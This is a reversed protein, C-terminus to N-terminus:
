LVQPHIVQLGLHQEFPDFDRTNHRRTINSEFCFTTILCDITSGITIGQQRLQRYNIAVCPNTTM